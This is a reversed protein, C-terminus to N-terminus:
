HLLFRSFLHFISLLLKIFVMKINKQSKYIYYNLNINLYILVIYVKENIHIIIIGM